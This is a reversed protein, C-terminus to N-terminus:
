VSIIKKLLFIIKKYMKFINKAMNCKFINKSYQIIRYKKLIDNHLSGKLSSCQSSILCPETM